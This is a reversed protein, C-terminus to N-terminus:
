PLVNVVSGPLPLPFAPYHHYIANAISRRRVSTVVCWIVVMEVSTVTMMMFVKLCHSPRRKRRSAGGSARRAVQVDLVLRDQKSPLIWVNYTSRTM